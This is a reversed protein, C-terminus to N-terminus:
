RPTEADDACFARLQALLAKSMFLRILRDIPKKHLDRWMRKAAGRKGSAIAARVVLSYRRVDYILAVTSVVFALGASGVSAVTWFNERPIIM